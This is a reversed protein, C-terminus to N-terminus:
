LGIAWNKRMSEGAAKKCMDGVEIEVMKEEMSAVGVKGWICNNHVKKLQIVVCIHHLWHM